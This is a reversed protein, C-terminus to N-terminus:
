TIGFVIAAPCRHQHPENRCGPFDFRNMLNEVDFVVPLSNSEAEWPL